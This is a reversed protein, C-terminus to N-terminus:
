AKGSTFNMIQLRHRCGLQDPINGTLQNGQLYLYRLSSLNGIYPSIYGTLGLGKLNLTTVRDDNDCRIGSWQCFPSSENWSSLTKTPDKTIMSKMSLLAEKDKANQSSNSEVFPRRPAQSFLNLSFILLTFSLKCTSGMSFHFIAGAFCLKTQVPYIASSCRSSCSLQLIYPLWQPEHTSYAFIHQSTMQQVLDLLLWVLPVAFVLSFEVIYTIWECLLNVGPAKVFTM